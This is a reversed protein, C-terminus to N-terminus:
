LLFSNVNSIIDVNYNINNFFNYSYKVKNDFYFYSEWIYKSKDSHYSQVELIEFPILDYESLKYKYDQYQICMIDHDYLNYNYFTRSFLIYTFDNNIDITTMYKQFTEDFQLGWTFLVWKKDSALYDVIEKGRTIIILIMDLNLENLVIKEFHNSYAQLINNFSLDSTYNSNGDVWVGGIIVLLRNKNELGM